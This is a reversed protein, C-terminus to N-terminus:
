FRRNLRLMICPLLCIEWEDALGSYRAGVFRHATSFILCAATKKSRWLVKWKM